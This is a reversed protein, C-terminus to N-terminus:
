NLGHGPGQHDRSGLTRIVAQFRWLLDYQDARFHEIEEGTAPRLIAPRQVRDGEKGVGINLIRGGYPVDLPTLVGDKGSVLVVQRLSHGVGPGPAPLSRGEPGQLRVTTVWYETDGM